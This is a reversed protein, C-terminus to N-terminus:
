KVQDNTVARPLPPLSGDANLRTVRRNDFTECQAPAEADATVEAASYTSTQGPEDTRDSASANPGNDRTESEGDVLTPDVRAEDIDLIAQCGLCGFTMLIYATYRTIM